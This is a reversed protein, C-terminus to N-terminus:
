FPNIMGLNYNSNSWLIYVFCQAEKITKTQISFILFIVYIKCKNDFIDSQAISYYLPRNTNFFDEWGSLNSLCWQPSNSHSMM